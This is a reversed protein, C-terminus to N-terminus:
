RFEAGNRSVCAGYYPPDELLKRRFAGIFSETERLVTVDEMNQSRIPKGKETHGVIGKSTLREGRKVKESDYYRDHRTFLFNSSNRSWNTQNNSSKRSNLPNLTQFGTNMKPQHITFDLNFDKYNTGSHRKFDHSKSKHKSNTISSKLSSEM